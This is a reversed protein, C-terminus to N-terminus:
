IALLAPHVITGDRVNVGRQLAKDERLAREIGGVAIKLVTPLTASALAETATRPVLSPFNTVGCHIVGDRRYVPKKWSTPVITEVCGGQDVAVDVIVSGPEMRQVMKRTVVCPAKGGPVLVGGILLDTRSLIEPLDAADWLIQLRESYDQGLRELKERNIDYVTVSAGLGHSVRVAYSGVHGAGIVTVHGTGGRGIANLLTGKGGLDRRLYNAGIVSALSGAIQSMPALLPLSHDEMEVTEYGIGLVRRKLLAKLLPRSAALHLFTFLIQGAKLLSTESPQPEKVKLIMESRRFLDKNSAVLCAGAERFQRDSFGAGSGAGKEVLVVQGKQVLQAVGSPTMSVRFEFPKVERPVGVIM